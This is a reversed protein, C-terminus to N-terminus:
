PLYLDPYVSSATSHIHLTLYRLPKILLSAYRLVSLHLYPLRSAAKYNWARVTIDTRRQRYNFVTTRTVTRTIFSMKVGDMDGHSLHLWLWVLFAGFMELWTILIMGYSFNCASKTCHTFRQARRLRVGTLSKSSAPFTVLRVSILSTHDM